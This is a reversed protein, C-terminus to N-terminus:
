SAKRRREKTEAVLLPTERLERSVKGCFHCQGRGVEPLERAYWGNKKACKCCTFVRYTRTKAMRGKPTATPSPM